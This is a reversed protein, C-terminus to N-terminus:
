TNQPIMPNFGDKLTNITIETEFSKHPTEIILKYTKAETISEVNEFVAYGSLEAKPSINTNELINESSINIDVFETEDENALLIGKKYYDAELKPFAALYTYTGDILKINIIDIPKTSINKINLAVIALKYNDDYFSFCYSKLIDYSIKLNPLTELRKAFKLILLFSDITLFLLFLFILINFNSKIFSIM